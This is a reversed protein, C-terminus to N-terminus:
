DTVNVKLEDSNGKLEPAYMAEIKAPLASFSGPQEARMRYSVAHKGQSLRYVFFTVRNDRYEVYAGLSNGNYGSRVEVPEFGAAKMDEILLSEYDNKSDIILEIEVLDGSKVNSFNEVPTRDYKEVRQSVVQGRNGAVNATKDVPTLLWYRRDIKVELGAATIQDELTFNELYVNFYVPGTGKRRLEIEHTGGTVDLGELVFTNDITLMNEPTIDVSKKVTGDVLIEVTMNPRDEGTARLFEAFAEVCLATDRTSNWYTAHKRNNLLWKVLRPAAESNPNVRMLLKLYMAQTEFESGHWSWWSWGPSRRLNLWATQNEDDQELYQELMRLCMQARERDSDNGWGQLGIGFMAVGYLSLKTRDRWLYERMQQMEPSMWGLKNSDALVMCVFADTNDASSKWEIKWREEEPLEANKIRQVEKKLYQSLWQEGRDLVSQDVAVDNHQAIKLGRVVQATLHASSHEGYGSFWGWGGDSCQMETLRKVGDRVMKSVEDQNYVPNHSPHRKRQWQAARTAPDGLEQANLNARSQELLALDVGSDILVKQTIVTPLFRNLTQETCGYPYDALYPLADIMAGALTPSFRVTLRSQEPVRQEPVQVIIKGSQDALHALHAPSSANASDGSVQRIVGSFAEQKLMGHVQVPFTMQMADSEENTLAKMRVTADGVNKAEVLWDVRAEGNAPVLKRTTSQNEVPAIADGDIELSVEVMKETALYNHVNATLLIKDRQVLFRPTQMRIILDKRTIVDTTAYGVQTGPAMSWVNIKWTTLNEPMSLEVTAIGDGNTEIAGVWLATDAFDKRIAAEVLGDGTGMEDMEDIAACPEAMMLMNEEGPEMPAAAMPAEAFDADLSMYALPEAAAYGGGMSSGYGDGMSKRGAGSGQLRDGLTLEDVAMDGFIGLNQMQPKDPPSLNHSYRELNSITKPNHHRRWKWFFEKINAINSGGSIYEVSKDYIAVVNQGVVPKGDLGSVVLDVSAKQGPKYTKSNPRVEVNLIRQEPPVALERTETYAHGDSITVAEVYFNPMDRQVVPISVTTSQGDLKLIQPPLYVGNTPRTFLMVTSGPRNTNILIELNEGPRYEAQNPILELENFRFTANSQTAGRVSFVYGGEIEHGAADKVLCSVRYQGPQAASLMLHGQGEDNLTINETHVVSEAVEPLEAGPANRTVKLLRITAPGSVPKGDLRRAQFDARIQQGTQYFGRNVWTYVKFPEKAVLITGKGVITRRSQDVVEATIEYKQDDNPFIEKTFSTDFIVDVTGDEGINVEQEAIVEPPGANRPFWWMAPRAAGWDQWGPFWTYDYGFWAYGNGYFWDWPRIPYWNANHKTRLVKYKVKANTVPAGFYYKATIKATITEGLAVPEKPADVTVEFEPKKYEEVRFQGNGLHEYMQLEGDRIKPTGISVNWVGLMADKPLELKEDIGGYSDLRIKKQVFKEGRPSYIELLMERDAFPSDFPQDYKSTGVWFKYEAVDGPKYVPRDSIFFAKTQEFEPDRREPYWFNSFGLYAFRGDPTTATMLWRYKSSLKSEDLILQGKNDSKFKSEKIQFTPRNNQQYEMRYAFIDVNMGAVPAGNEADGFYFWVQKELPKQVIATDNVWVVIYDTNGNQMEAKVLYAGGTKMPVAIVTRTDFHNSAPKLPVTWRAVERGLYKKANDKQDNMVLRYGIQDIQIKQWDVESPKSRLYAKIDELLQPVKIEQATLTVADGNRFLYTLNSGKGAAVAPTPEFCGWNGLIQDRREKWYAIDNTELPFERILQEWYAAAKDFQRRNEYIRALEALGSKKHAGGLEALQGYLLIANYDDPLTFRKVGNALRAITENDKLTHLDWTGTKTNGSSSEQVFPSIFSYERLTGTGFMSESVGARIELVEALKSRDNEVAKELCWRWREGDSKASEFSEPVTYYVPNGEADVPAYSSNGRDWGRGWGPEYDPLTSLDTLIQMKWPEGVNHFMMAFTLFFDAVDSKNNDQIALPMAEQMLLMRQVRDRNTADVREGQRNGRVFKGDIISGSTYSGLGTFNEAAAKLLRWNNPHIKIVQDRYDDIESIRNLNQLCELAMQLGKGVTMPDANPDLTWAQLADFAEKYLGAKMYKEADPIPNQMNIEKPVGAPLTPQSPAATSPPRVPVVRGPVRGPRQAFVTGFLVGAILMGTIILLLLMGVYFKLRM